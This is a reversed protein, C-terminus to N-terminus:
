YIINIGVWTIKQPKTKYKEFKCILTYWTNSAFKSYNHFVLEYNIGNLKLQILISKVNRLINNLYNCCYSSILSCMVDHKIFIPKFLHRKFNFFLMCIKNLNRQRLCHCPIWTKGNKTCKFFNQYMCWYMQIINVHKSHSCQMLVKKLNERFICTHFM